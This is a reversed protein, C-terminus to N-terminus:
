RPNTPSSSAPEPGLRKPASPPTSVSNWTTVADSDQEHARYLPREPPLGLRALMKGIGQPTMAVGVRRAVLERVIKRTWLAFDFQFQRPDARRGAV